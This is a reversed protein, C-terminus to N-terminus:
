APSKGLFYSLAQKLGELDQEFSWGEIIQRSRGGMRQCGEPDSLVQRLADALAAVNGAPYVFGNEGNQVLDAAAGVQDSVIAIAIQM